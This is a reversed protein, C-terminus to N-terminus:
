RELFGRVQTGFALVSGRSWWLLKLETVLIVSSFNQQSRSAVNQKNYIQQRLVHLKVVFIFLSDQEYEHVSIV